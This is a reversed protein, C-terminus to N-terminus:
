AHSIHLNNGGTGSNKTHAILETGSDCLEALEPELKIKMCIFHYANLYLLEEDTLRKFWELREDLDLHRIQHLPCEEPNCLEVPCTMALSLVNDRLETRKQESLVIM